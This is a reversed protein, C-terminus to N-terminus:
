FHVMWRGAGVRGSLQRPPFPPAPHNSQKTGEAARLAIRIGVNWCFFAFFIANRDKM